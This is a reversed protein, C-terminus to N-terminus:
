ATKTWQQERQCQDQSEIIADGTAGVPTDWSAGNLVVVVLNDDPGTHCILKGAHKANVIGGTVLMCDVRGETQTWEDAPFTKSLKLVIKGPSLKYFHDSM